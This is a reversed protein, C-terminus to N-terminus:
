RFPSYPTPAHLNIVEEPAVRRIEGILRRADPDGGIGRMAAWYQEISPFYWLDLIEPPSGLATQFAGVLEMGVTKTIPLFEKEFIDLFEGLHTSRVRLAATMLIGPRDSRRSLADAPHYRLPTLVRRPENEVLNHVQEFLARVNPDADRSERVKQLDALDEYAWLHTVSDQLGTLNTWAAVMRTGHSELAARMQNKILSNWEGQKGPVIKPSAELFIM